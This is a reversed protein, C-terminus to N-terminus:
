LKFTSRDIVKKIKHMEETFKSNCYNNVYSAMFPIMCLSCFYYM